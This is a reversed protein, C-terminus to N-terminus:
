AHCQPKINNKGPIEGDAWVWELVVDPHWNGSLKSTLKGIVSYSQGQLQVACYM